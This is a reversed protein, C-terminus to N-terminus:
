HIQRSNPLGSLSIGVIQSPRVILLLIVCLMQCSFRHEYCYEMDLSIDLTRSFGAPDGLGRM